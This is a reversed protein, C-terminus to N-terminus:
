AYRKQLRYLIIRSLINFVLVVVFLILAAFMLASEYIPVSMMEGFNNALLAPLPYAGDFLSTPIQTINGCVMLVAITEGMARSLSLMVTAVIGPLNRRLIVKKTTQWRTAGLSKSAERLEDPTTSFIEVFLSVLLPLIMVGLVIGGTLVTYGTSFEVFHPALSESIWPVILLVGWLGYIVSPIGALIDLVPFVVKKAWSPSYETLFIATLLSIPLTWLIAVGTVALTGAIFPLFGFEGRMPKWSSGSILEWLSKEELIPMSKIVLGVAILVVLLLACLTMVLMTTSAVREKLLRMGLKSELKSM